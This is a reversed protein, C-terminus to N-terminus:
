HFENSNHYGSVVIMTGPKNIQLSIVLDLNDKIISMVLM